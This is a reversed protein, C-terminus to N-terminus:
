RVQAWNSFVQGNGGYTVLEEPFQAVRKDLNNLIMHVIAASQRCRAPISDLPFARLEARLVYLTVKISFILNNFKLSGEWRPMFRYMYIHGYEELEKAFEPALEPHLRPPFYRLANSLAM